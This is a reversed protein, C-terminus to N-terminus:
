VNKWNSKYIVARITAVSVQYKAALDSHRTDDALKRIELVDAVCLKSQPQLGDYLAHCSSCMSRYDEVDSYKGTLNAWHFTRSTKKCGREKCESAKGRMKYVRLHCAVYGAEEGKWWYANGKTREDRFAKKSWLEKLKASIM